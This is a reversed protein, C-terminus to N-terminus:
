YWKNITSQVPDWNCCMPNKIKMTAHPIKLQPMYVRLNLVHSRTGQGPILGLGRENPAHLILWQVVLFTGRTVNEFLCFELFPFCILPKWSHSIFTWSYLSLMYFNSPSPFSNQRIIRSTFIQNEANTLVWLVRCCLTSEVTYQKFIDAPKLPVVGFPIWALLHFFCIITIVVTAGHPNSCRPLTCEAGQCVNQGESDPLRMRRCYTGGAPDAERESGGKCAGQWRRPRKMHGNRSGRFLAM